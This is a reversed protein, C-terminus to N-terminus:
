QQGSRESSYKPGGINAKNASSLKMLAEDRSAVGADELAIAMIDDHTWPPLECSVNANGSTPTITFTLPNYRMELPSRIVTVNMRVEDIGVRTSGTPAYTSPPGGYTGGHNSDYNNYSNAPHDYRAYFSVGNPTSRPQLEYTEGKMQFYVPDDWQPNKFVNGLTKEVDIRRIYRFPIDAWKLWSISLVNLVEVKEWTSARYQTDNINKVMAKAYVDLQYKSFQGYKNVTPSYQNESAHAGDPFRDKRISNSTQLEGILPMLADEGAQISSASSYPITNKEPQAGSALYHKFMIDNVFKTQARNLFQTKEEVTFYPSDGKDQLVDFWSHMEQINM